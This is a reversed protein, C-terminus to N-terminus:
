RGEPPFAMGVAVVLVGVMALVFRLSPLPWASVVVIAYGVMVVVLGSNSM